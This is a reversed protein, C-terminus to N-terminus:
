RIVSRSLLQPYQYLINTAVSQMASLSHLSSSQYLKTSLPTEIRCESLHDLYQWDSVIESSCSEFYEYQISIPTHESLDGPLTYVSVPFYVTNRHSVLEYNLYEVHHLFTCTESILSGLNLWYFDKELFFSFVSDSGFASTFIYDFSIGSSGLLIFSHTPSILRREPYLAFAHKSVTSLEPCVPSHFRSFFRCERSEFRSYSQVALSSVKYDNLLIDFLDSPPFDPLGLRFFNTSLIINKNAIDGTFINLLERLQSLTFKTLM